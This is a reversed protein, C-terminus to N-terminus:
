EPRPGYGRAPVWPSSADQTWLIAQEPFTFSTKEEGIHLSPKKKMDETWEYRFAVGNNFVRARLRLASNDGSTVYENFNVSATPYKGRTEFTERVNERVKEVSWGTIGDAVGAGDVVIGLASPELVVRGKKNLSHGAKGNRAALNWTVLGDPSAMAASPEGARVTGSAALVAISSLIILNKMVDGKM